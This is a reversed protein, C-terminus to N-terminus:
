HGGPQLPLPFHCGNPLGDFSLRIRWVGPRAARRRGRNRVTGRLRTVSIRGGVCFETGTGASLIGVDRQAPWFTGTDRRHSSEFFVFGNKELVEITQGSQYVQKSDAVVLRGKGRRPSVVSDLAQYLDVSTDPVQWLTGGITLPGLNPGYGAEDTGILFAVFAGKGNRKFHGLMFRLRDQWLRSPRAEGAPLAEASPDEFLVPQTSIIGGHDSRQSHHGSRGALRQRHLHHGVRAPCWIPVLPASIPPDNPPPFLFPRRCPIRSSHM